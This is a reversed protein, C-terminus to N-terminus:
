LPQHGWPRAQTSSQAIVNLDQYSSTNFPPLEVQLIKDEDVAAAESSPMSSVGTEKSAFVSESGAFSSSFTARSDTSLYKMLYMM